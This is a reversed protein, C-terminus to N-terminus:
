PLSKRTHQDTALLFPHCSHIIPISSLFLQFSHSVPIVSVICFLVSWHYILNFPHNKLAMGGFLEYCQVDKMLNDGGPVWKVASGVSAIRIFHRAWPCLMSNGPNLDDVETDLFRCEFWFVLICYWASMWWFYYWWSLHSPLIGVNFIPTSRTLWNFCKTSIAPYMVKAPLWCHPAHHQKDYDINQKRAYRVEKSRFGHHVMISWLSVVLGAIIGESCDSATFSYFFSCHACFAM